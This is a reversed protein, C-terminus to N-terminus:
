GLRVMQGFGRTKWSKKLKILTKENKLKRKKKILKWTRKIYKKWFKRKRVKLKKKWNKEEVKNKNKELLIFCKNRRITAKKVKKELLM